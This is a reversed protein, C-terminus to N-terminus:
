LLFGLGDFDPFIILLRVISFIETASIRKMDNLEFCLLIFLFFNLNLSPINSNLDVNVLLCDQGSGRHIGKSLSPCHSVSVRFALMQTNKSQFYVLLHSKIAIINTHLHLNISVKYLISLLQLVM